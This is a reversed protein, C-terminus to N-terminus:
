SVVAVVIIAPLLVLVMCCARRMLGFLSCSFTNFQKAPCFSIPCQFAEAPFRLGSASFSCYLVTGHLVSTSCFANSSGDMNAGPARRCILAGGREVALGVKLITNLQLSHHFAPAFRCYASDAWISVLAANSAVSLRVSLRVRTYQLAFSKGCAWVAGTLQVNPAAGTYEVARHLAKRKLRKKM